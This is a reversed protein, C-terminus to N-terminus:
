QLVIFLYLNRQTRQPGRDRLDEMIFLGELQNSLDEQELRLKALNGANIACHEVLSALDEELKKQQNRM